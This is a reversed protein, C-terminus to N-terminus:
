ITNCALDSLVARRQQQGRHLRQDVAVEVARHPLLNQRENTGGSGCPKPSTVRGPRRRTDIISVAHRVADDPTTRADFHPSWRLV